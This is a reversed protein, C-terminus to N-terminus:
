DSIHIVNGQSLIQRMADPIYEYRTVVAEFTKCTSSPKSKSEPSLVLNVNLDDGVSYWYLMDWLLAKSNDITDSSSNNDRHIDEFKDTLHKRLEDNCIAEEISNEATDVEIETSYDVIVDAEDDLNGNYEKHKTYHLVLVPVELQKRWLSKRLEMDHTNTRHCEILVDAKNSKVIDSLWKGYSGLGVCINMIFIPQFQRNSCIFYFLPKGRLSKMERDEIVMLVPGEKTITSIFRDLISDANGLFSVYKAFYCETATMNAGLLLKIRKDIIIERGVNDDIETDQLKMDISDRDITVLLDDFGNQDLLLIGKSSAIFTTLARVMAQSPTIDEYGSVGSEVVKKHKIRDELSSLLSSHIYTNSAYTSGSLLLCGGILYPLKARLM